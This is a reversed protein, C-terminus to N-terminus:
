LGLAKAPASPYRFDGYHVGALALACSLFSLNPGAHAVQLMAALAVLGAVGGM